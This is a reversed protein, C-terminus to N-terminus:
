TLVSKQGNGRPIIWTIVYTFIYIFVHSTYM